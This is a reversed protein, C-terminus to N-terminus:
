RLGSAAARAVRWERRARIGLAALVPGLRRSSRVDATTAPPARPPVPAAGMTRTPADARGPVPSAQLPVTQSLGPAAGRFLTRVLEGLPAGDPSYGDLALVASLAEATTAFRRSPEASLM